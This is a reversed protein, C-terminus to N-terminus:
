GCTGRGAAATRVKVQEIWVRRAASRRRLRARKMKGSSLMRHCSAMRAADEWSRCACRWRGIRPWPAFHRQVKEAFRGLVEEGDSANSADSRAYRKLSACGHQSTKSQCSRQKRACSVISVGKGGTERIHRGQINGSFVVWPERNLEQRPLSPHAGPAWYAYQRTCWTM